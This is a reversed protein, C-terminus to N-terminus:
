AVLTCKNKGKGIKLKVQLCDKPAQPTDEARGLTDAVQKSARPGKVADEGGRPRRSSRDWYVSREATQTSLLQPCIKARPTGM